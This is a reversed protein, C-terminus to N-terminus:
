RIGAYVLLVLGGGFALAAAVQDVTLSAIPRDGIVIYPGLTCYIIVAILICLTPRLFKM